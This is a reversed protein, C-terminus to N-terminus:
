LCSFPNHKSFRQHRWYNRWHYEMLSHNSHYFYCYICRHRPPTIWHFWLRPDPHQCQCLSLTYIEVHIKWFKQNTLVDHITLSMTPFITLYNKDYQHFLGSIWHHCHPGSLWNGIDSHTSPKHTFFTSYGVVSWVLDFSSWIDHINSLASTKYRTLSISIKNTWGRKQNRRLEDASSDTM